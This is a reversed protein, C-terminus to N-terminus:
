TNDLEIHTVLVRNPGDTSSSTTCVFSARVRLDATNTILAKEPGTLVLERTGYTTTVTDAAFTAIASAGQRLTFAITGAILALRRVRLRVKVASTADFSAGLDSLKVEFEFTSATTCRKEVATADEDSTVEDVQTWLNSTGGNGIIQWSGANSVDVAPRAFTERNGYTGTVGTTFPSDNWNTRQAKVRFFWVDNADPVSQHIFQLVGAGTTGIQTWGSSGNLSREIVYSAGSGNTGAWTLRVEAIGQTATALATPVGLTGRLTRLSITVPGTPPNFVGNELHQAGLVYQTDSALGTFTYANVGTGLTAVVNGDVTMRTQSTADGTTWTIAIQDHNPSVGATCTSCTLASPPATPGSGAAGSDDESFATSLGREGYSNFPVGFARVWRGTAAPVLFPGSGPRITAVHYAESELPNAGAAASNERVYLAVRAADIGDGDLDFNSVAIEVGDAVATLTLTVAPIDHTQAVVATSEAWESVHGAVNVTRVRAQWTQGNRVGNANAERTDVGRVRAVTRYINDGDVQRAQVEYFDILSYNASGWSIRVRDQDTGSDVVVAVPPLVLAISDLQTAPETRRDDLTNLAYATADYERLSVAVTTDPRVQLATVWFSKLTWGPTPHTVSVLDGVSAKLVEETCVVQASIGKRAENLLVAATAQATLQDNTFPLDVSSRAQFGNDAALYSNTQGKPPWQTERVKFAGDLPDVYSAKVLNWKEEIGDNRFSWEGIINAPSLVLTAAPAQDSRIVLKFKGQEWILNARCASLLEDRNAETPNATDLVGNTTFRKQTVLKKVTGGTGGTTVNVAVTFTTPGTVTGVRDGNITPVSGTHGAIRVTDGTAYGHPASTTIVTPNAISSSVITAQATEHTVLQDCYDAATKFSAEHILSEPYGLGYIPALLFDRICMAPNDGGPIWTATRTDYVRVGRVVAAVSPPGHFVPGGADPDNVTPYGRVNVLRFSIAAIGAGKDTTSSWGSEAVDAPSKSPLTLLSVATAGVNQATTGTFVQYGVTHQVPFIREGTVVNIGKRNNFWVEDVGAIGLGDRSGHALATIMWLVKDSTDPEVWWDAVVAGVKGRGYVVPLPTGPELTANSILRQRERLRPRDMLSGVTGLVLGGIRLATALTPGMALGFPGTAIFFAGIAVLKLLSGFFSM